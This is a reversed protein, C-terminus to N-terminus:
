GNARKSERDQVRAREGLDVLISLWAEYTAPEGSRTTPAGSFAEALGRVIRITPKRKGSEIRSVEPQTLGSRRALEAVTWSRSARHMKVFRIFGNPQDSM